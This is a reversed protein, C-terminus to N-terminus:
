HGLVLKSVLSIRHLHATARDPRLGLEQEAKIIQYHRILEPDDRTLAYVGGASVAIPILLGASSFFSLTAVYYPIRESKTPLCSHSSFLFFGMIDLSKLSVQIIVLYM